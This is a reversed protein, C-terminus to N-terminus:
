RDAARHRVPSRRLHNGSSAEMSTPPTQAAREATAEVDVEGNGHYIVM